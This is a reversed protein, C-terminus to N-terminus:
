PAFPKKQQHDDSGPSGKEAFGSINVWVAIKPVKSRTKRGIKRRFPRFSAANSRTHFLAFRGSSTRPRAQRLEHGGTREDPMVKLDLFHIRM